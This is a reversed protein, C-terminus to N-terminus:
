LLFKHDSLELQRFDLILTTPQNRGFTRLSNTRPELAVGPREQSAPVDRRDNGGDECPRGKTCRQAEFIGRRGKFSCWGNSEPSM